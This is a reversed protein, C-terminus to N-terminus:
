ELGTSKTGFITPSEYGKVMGSPRCVETTLNAPYDSGLTYSHWTALSFAAALLALAMVLTLVASMTM